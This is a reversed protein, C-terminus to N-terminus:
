IIPFHYTWLLVRKTTKTQRKRNKIKMEQRRDATCAVQWVRMQDTQQGLDWSGPGPGIKSKKCRESKLNKFISAHLRPTALLFKTSYNTRNKEKMETHRNEKMDKVQACMKSVKKRPIKDPLKNRSKVQM